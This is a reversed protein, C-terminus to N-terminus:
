CKTLSMTLREFASEKNSSYDTIEAFKQGGLISKLEEKQEKTFSYANSISLSINSFDENKLKKINQIFEEATKASELLNARGESNLSSQSGAPSVLSSSQRDDEAKLPSQSLFPSPPQYSSSKQPEPSYLPSKPKLQKIEKKQSPEIFEVVELDSEKKTQKTTSSNQSLLNSQDSQVKRKKTKPKPEFIDEIKLDPEVNSKGNTCSSQVQHSPKNQPSKSPSRYDEITLKEPSRATRLLNGAKARKVFNGETNVKSPSQLENVKKFHAM